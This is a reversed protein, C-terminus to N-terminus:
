RERPPPSSDDPRSPREAPDRRKATGSVRVVAVARGVPNIPKLRQDLARGKEFGLTTQGEELARFRLSAVLGTGTVGPQQGVRSAGLVVRGPNSSDAMFKAQGSSGLFGGRQVHVVELIRPDFTLTVPLHSVPVRANAVLKVDFTAGPAVLPRVPQLELEVKPPGKEAKTESDVQLAVTLM